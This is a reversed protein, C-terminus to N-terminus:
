IYAFEIGVVTNYKYIFVLFSVGFLILLFTLFGYPM